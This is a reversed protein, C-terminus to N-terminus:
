KLLDIEREIEISSLDYEGFYRLLKIADFLKVSVLSTQRYRDLKIVSSISGPRHWKRSRRDKIVVGIVYNGYNDREEIVDNKICRFDDLRKAEELIQVGCESKIMTSYIVSLPIRWKTLVDIFLTGRKTVRGDMTEKEFIKCEVGLESYRSRYDHGFYSIALNRKVHFICENSDNNKPVVFRELM